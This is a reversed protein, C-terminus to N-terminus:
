LLSLFFSLFPAFLDRVSPCVFFSPLVSSPLFFSLEFVLELPNAILNTWLQKATFKPDNLDTESIVDTLKDRYFSLRQAM